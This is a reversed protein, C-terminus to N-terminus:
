SLCIIVLDEFWVNIRQKLWIILSFSCKSKQLQAPFVYTILQFLYVYYVYMINIETCAKLILWPIQWVAKYPSYICNSLKSFILTFCRSLIGCTWFNEEILFTANLLFWAICLRIWFGTSFRLHLKKRFYKWDNVIKGLLEM